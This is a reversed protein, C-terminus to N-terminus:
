HLLCCRSQAPPPSKLRFSTEARMANGARAEPIPAIASISLKWGRGNGYVQYKVAGAGRSVPLSKREAGPGLFLWLFSPLQLAKGHATNANLMNRRFGRMM